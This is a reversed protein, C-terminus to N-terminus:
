EPRYRALSTSVRIVVDQTLDLAAEYDGTMRYVYSVIPRQYRRVLEEFGDGRGAVAVAVLEADAARSFQEVTPSATSM